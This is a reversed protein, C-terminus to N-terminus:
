HGTQSRLSVRVPPVSDPDNPDVVPPPSPAKEAEPFLSAGLTIATDEPLDYGAQQAMLLLSKEVMRDDSSLWVTGLRSRPACGHGAPNLQITLRITPMQKKPKPADESDSGETTAKDDDDEAAGEGSKEEEGAVKAVGEMATDGDATHTTPPIDLSADDTGEEGRGEEGEEGRTDDGEDGGEDDTESGSETASSEEEEEEEDGDAGPRPPDLEMDDSAPPLGHEKRARDELEDLFNRREAPKSPGPEPPASM